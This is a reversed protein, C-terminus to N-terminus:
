KKGHKRNIIYKEYKILKNKELLTLYYSLREYLPEVDEGYQERLVEGIEKVTAEGNCLRWVSSGYKELNVNYTQNIKFMRGLKKGLDTNFRPIIISVLDKDKPNPKWKRTRVPKMKLLNFLSDQSKKTRSREKTEPDSLTTKVFLVIM